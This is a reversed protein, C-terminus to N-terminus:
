SVSSIQLKYGYSKLLSHAGELFLMYYIHLIIIIQFSASAFDVASYLCRNITAYTMSGGELAVTCFYVLNCIELAFYHGNNQMTLHVHIEEFKISSIEEVTKEDGCVHITDKGTNNWQRAVFVM